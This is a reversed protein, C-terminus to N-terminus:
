KKKTEKDATAAGKPKITIGQAALLDRIDKDDNKISADALAQVLSNNLQSLNIGSNIATQRQSIEAQLNRNSNVLAVNSVLLLLALASLLVSAWYAAKDDM